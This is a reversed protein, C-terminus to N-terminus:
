GPRGGLLQGRQGQSTNPSLPESRLTDKMVASVVVHFGDTQYKEGRRSRSSGREPGGAGLRRREEAFIRMMM